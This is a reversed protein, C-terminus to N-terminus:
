TSVMYVLVGFVKIRVAVNPDSCRALIQPWLTHLLPLLVSEDNKLIAIGKRVTDLVMQRMSSSSHGMLHSCRKLIMAVLDSYENQKAKSTLSDTYNTENWRAVSSAVTRMVSILMATELDDYGDLSDFLDEITDKLFPFIDAGCCQM